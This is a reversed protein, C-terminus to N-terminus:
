AADRPQESVVRQRRRLRWQRCAVGVPTMLYPAYRRTLWFVLGWFVSVLLGALAYRWLEM